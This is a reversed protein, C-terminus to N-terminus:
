ASDSHNGAIEVGPHTPLNMEAVFEEEPFILMM